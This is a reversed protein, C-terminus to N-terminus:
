KLRMDVYTQQLQVSYSEWVVDGDSQDDIKRQCIKVAKGMADCIRKTEQRQLRPRQFVPMRSFVDFEHAALLYNHLAHDPARHGTLSDDLFKWCAKGKLGNTSKSTFALNDNENAIEYVFPTLGEVLEGSRDGRQELVRALAYAFCQREWIHDLQDNFGALPADAYIDRSDYLKVIEAGKERRLNPKTFTAPKIHVFQPNHQSCCYAYSPKAPTLCKNGGEGKMGM